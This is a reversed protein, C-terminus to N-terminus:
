KSIPPIEFEIEGCDVVKVEFGEKMGTTTGAEAIEQVVEM